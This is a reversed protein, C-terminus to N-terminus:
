KTGKRTDHAIQEPFLTGLERAKTFVAKRSRGLIRCAEEICVGTEVFARVRRTDFSSWRRRSMKPFGVSTKPDFAIKM